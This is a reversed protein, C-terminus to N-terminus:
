KVTGSISLQFEPTLPSNNYITITKYQNGYRNQSDFTVAIKTGMGPPIIMLDATAETCGCGTTINYIELDSKGQNTIYFTHKVKAGHSIQGFNFNPESCQIKPAATLQEETYHSFKQELKATYSFYPYLIYEGNEVLSFTAIYYGVKQPDTEYLTVILKASDKPPIAATNFRALLGEPAEATAVQITDNTPNYCNITDAWAEGIFISGAEIRNTSFQLSGIEKQQANANLTILLTLFTVLSLYLTFPSFTFPSFTFPSFPFTFLSRLSYTGRILAPSSTLWAFPSKPPQCFELGSRLSYTGRILAPSSTLWAFPSKPPQCFEPESRLSYTGRILAPSSTLWAFPSKPPQCFEPESRLSYLGRILSILKSLLSSNNPHLSFKCPFLHPM